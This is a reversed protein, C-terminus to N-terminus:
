DDDKDRIEPARDGTFTNIVKGAISMSGTLRGKEIVATYSRDKSSWHLEHHEIKIDPIMDMQGGPFGVFRGHIKSSGADNVEIWWARGRSENQVTLNWRGNFDKDAALSLGAAATLVLLLKNM